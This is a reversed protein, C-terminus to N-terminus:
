LIRGHISFKLVPYVKLKDILKSFDDDKDLYDEKKLEEYVGDENKYYLKPSGHFQAGLEVRFALRNKPVLRGWGIGLYPRFSSVKAYGDVDGNESVPLEFDAIGLNIKVDELTKGQALWDQYYNKIDDSHGKLKILRSGGYSFGAAIFWSARNFPYYDFKVHGMVRSTNGEVEVEELTFPNGNPYVLNTTASKEIKVDGKIKIAPVADFGMSVDFHNGIPAAVNLGWGETGVSLGVGFTNFYGLSKQASVHLLPFLAVVLFLIVKKMSNINLITFTENKGAFIFLFKLM